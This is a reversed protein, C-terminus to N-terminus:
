RRSCAKRGQARRQAVGALRGPGGRVVKSDPVEVAHSITQTLAEALVRAQAAGLSSGRGEWALRDRVGRLVSLDYLEIQYHIAAAM